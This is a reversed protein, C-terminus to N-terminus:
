WGTTCTPSQLAPLVMAVVRFDTLPSCWHQLGISPTPPTSDLLVTGLVREPFTFYSLTWQVLREM